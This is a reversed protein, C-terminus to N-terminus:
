KRATVVYDLTLGRGNDLLLSFLSIPSYLLILLRRLFFNVTYSKKILLVGLSSDLYEVLLQGLTGITGTTQQISEIKFGSQELLHRNGFRTFRRFDYPIEHEPWVFPMTIFVCGNPKLVRYVEAMIKEPSEVHELVQTLIVTDYSNNKFPINVGDFYVDTNKLHDKHGADHVEIGTYSKFLKAYPKSGCGVDLVEGHPFSAFHAVSKYLKKRTVFHPNFFVSFWPSTYSYKREFNTIKETIKKFAKKM